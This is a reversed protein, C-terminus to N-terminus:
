FPSPSTAPPPSSILVSPHRDIKPRRAVAEPSCMTDNRQTRISMSIAFEEGEDRCDVRHVAMIFWHRRM